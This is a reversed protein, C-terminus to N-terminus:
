LFGIDNNILENIDNANLAKESAFILAEIHPIIQSIEM